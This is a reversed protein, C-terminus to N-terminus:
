GAPPTWAGEVMARSGSFVGVPSGEIAFSTAQAALSDLASKFAHKPNPVTASFAGAIASISTLVPLQGM